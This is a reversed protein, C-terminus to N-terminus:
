FQGDFATTKAKKKAFGSELNLSMSQGANNMTMVHAMMIGGKVEKYDSFIVMGSVSNGEEDTAFTEEIELWGNEISYYEFAFDDQGEKSVKVKYYEKGEVEDIGLLEVKLDSSSMYHYQDMPFSAKKKSELDEGEYKTKGGGMVFTGGAEGNFWEKQAVMNGQGSNIKVISATKNPKGAYSIM